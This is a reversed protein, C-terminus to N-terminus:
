TTNNNSSSSSLKTHSENWENKNWKFCNFVDSSANIANHFRNSCENASCDLQIDFTVPAATAPVSAYGFSRSIPWLQYSDFVFINKEIQLVFRRGGIIHWRNQAARLNINQPRFSDLIIWLNPSIERKKWWELVFSISRFVSSHILQHRVYPKRTIYTQTWMNSYISSNLETRFQTPWVNARWIGKHVHFTDIEFASVFITIYNENM